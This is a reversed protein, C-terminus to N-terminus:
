IHAFGEADEDPHLGLVEGAVDVGLGNVTRNAYAFYAVVQNLDLITADDLGIARLPELDSKVMNQADMTLKTTYVILVRERETLQDSEFEGVSARTIEDALAADGGLTRALGARHHQVCYDCKNLLSVCVAMLERERMSLGNPKSHLAAKYIELHGKLTIPRLSHIKLIHDVHGDASQVSKYLKELRGEADEPEVVEIWSM